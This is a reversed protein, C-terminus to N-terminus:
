QLCIGIEQRLALQQTILVYNRQATAGIEYSDINSWSVGSGGDIDVPACILGHEGSEDVYFVVGDEGNAGILEGVYHTSASGNTANIVYPNVTTGAGTVTVNTGATVSTESGDGVNDNEVNKAMLAYPVSLLQSTGMLVDNVTIEVFYIDSSFDVASMDNISGINLNILGQATTTVVHTEDFVSPGTVSGQLISIDVTVSEEPMIAGEANRLVAQYKFENPTQAFIGTITFIIAVIILSIKKM